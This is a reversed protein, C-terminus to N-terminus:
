ISNKDVFMAAYLTDRFDPLSAELEQLQRETNIVYNRRAETRLYQLLKETTAAKLTEGFWDLLIKQAADTIHEGYATSRITPVMKHGYGDPSQFIKQIKIVFEPIKKGYLVFPDQDERWGRHYARSDKAELTCNVIPIYKIDWPVLKGLYEKYEKIAHTDFKSFHRLHQNNITHYQQEIVALFYQVKEEKKYVYDCQILEPNTEGM